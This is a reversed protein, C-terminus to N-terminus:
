VLGLVKLVWLAIVALIALLALLALAVWWWRVRHAGALTAITWFTSLNRLWEVPLPVNSGRSASLDVRRFAYHIGIAVLWGTVILLTRPGAASFMAAALSS